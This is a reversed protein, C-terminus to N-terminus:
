RRGVSRPGRESPRRESFGRPGCRLQLSGGLLVFRGTRMAVRVCEPGTRAKQTSSAGGRRELSECRGFATLGIERRNDASRGSHRRARRRTGARVSWETRSVGDSTPTTSRSSSGGSARQIAVSTGGNPSLPNWEPHAKFIRREVRSKTLGKKARHFESRTVCRRARADDAAASVPAGGYARAADPGHSDGPSAEAPSGGTTLAVMGASAALAVGMWRGLGYGQAHWARNSM